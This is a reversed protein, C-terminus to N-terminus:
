DAPLRISCAIMPSSSSAQNLRQSILRATAFELIALAELRRDASPNSRIEAELPESSFLHHVSM